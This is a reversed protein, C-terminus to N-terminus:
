VHALAHCYLPLPFLRRIASHRAWDGLDPEFPGFFLQSLERRTLELAPSDQATDGITLTGGEGRVCVTEGTDTARIAFDGNWAQLRACLLPRYAELIVRLSVIRIMGAPRVHYSQAHHLLLKELDTEADVPPLAVSWTGSQLLFRLLRGVAERTGGYEVVTNGRVSLYGFGTEPQDCIWVVQGPRRLVRGCELATRETRYPLASYAELIRLLDGPDGNWARLSVASVPEAAEFRTVGAALALAREAGAHEWGYNGYRTRDGGLLCLGIGEASMDALCRALLRGMLGHRRFPPYSFVNALGMAPLRVVGAIVHARPVLQIGAAIQGDVLALRWQAMTEPLVTDPCIEEFRSHGPNRERFSCVVREMVAAFDQATGLRIEDM